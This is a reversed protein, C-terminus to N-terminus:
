VLQQQVCVHVAQMCARRGRRGVQLWRRLLQPRPVCFGAAAGLEKALNCLAYMLGISVNLRDASSWCTVNEQQQQQQQEQLQQPLSHQQSLLSPNAPQQSHASSRRGGAAPSGGSPHSFSSRRPTVEGPSPSTARAAAAAAAAPASRDEASLAPRLSTHPIQLALPSLRAKTCATVVMCYSGAKLAIATRDSMCHLCPMVLHVWASQAPLAAQDAPWAYSCGREDGVQLGWLELRQQLGVDALQEPDEFDFICDTILSTGFTAMLCGVAPGVAASISAAGSAVTDLASCLQESTYDHVQICCLVHASADIYPMEVWDAPKIVRCICNQLVAYCVAASRAHWGLSSAHKRGCGFACLNYHTCHRVELRALLYTMKDAAPLATNPPLLSAVDAFDETSVARFVALTDTQNVRFRALLQPPPVPVLEPEEAAEGDQQQQQQEALLDADPQNFALV